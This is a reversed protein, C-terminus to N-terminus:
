DARDPFDPVSEFAKRFDIGIVAGGNEMAQFLAEKTLLINSAILRGPIFGSQFKGIMSGLVKLLRKNIIKAFIRYSSATIQILRYNDLGDDDLLKIEENKKNKELSDTKYDSSYIDSLSDSDESSSSSSEIVKNIKLKRQPKM